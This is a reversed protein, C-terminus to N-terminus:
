QEKKYAEEPSRVLMGLGMLELSDKGHETMKDSSWPPDFTLKILCENVGEVERAKEQVQSPLIEAAPCNPTTLTMEVLVKGLENVSIGYILGLDFINIPIEPDYITQIESAIQNILVEREIKSLM